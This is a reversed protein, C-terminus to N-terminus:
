RPMPAIFCTLCVSLMHLLVVALAATIRLNDRMAIDHSKAM